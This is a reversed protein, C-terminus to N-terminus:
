FWFIKIKAKMTEINNSHHRHVGRIFVDATTYANAPSLKPLSSYPNHPQKNTMQIQQQLNTSNSRINQYIPQTPTPHINPQSQGFQSVGHKLTSPGSSFTNFIPRREFSNDSRADNLLSLWYAKVEDRSNHENGHSKTGMHEFILRTLLDGISKKLDEKKFLQILQTSSAKQRLIEKDKYMLYYKTSACTVSKLNLTKPQTTSERNQVLFPSQLLSKDRM